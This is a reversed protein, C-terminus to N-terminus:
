MVSTDLLKMNLRRAWDESAYNHVDQKPSRMNKVVWEHTRIAYLPSTVYIMYSEALKKKHRLLRFDVSIFVVYVNNVWQYTFQWFLIKWDSDHIDLDSPKCRTRLESYVKDVNGPLEGKKYYQRLQDVSVVRQIVAMHDNTLSIALKKICEYARGVDDAKETDFIMVISLELYRLLRRLRDLRHPDQQQNSEQLNRHKENFFTEVILYPDSKVAYGREIINKLRKLLERLTSILFDYISDIVKISEEVVPQPIIIDTQDGLKGLFYEIISRLPHDREIVDRLADYIVINADLAYIPRM